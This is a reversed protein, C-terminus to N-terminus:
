IEESSSRLVTYEGKVAYYGFIVMGIAIPIFVIVFVGWQIKTDIMPNKHIERLATRVLYYIAVPGLLIWIIGMIKKVQQM